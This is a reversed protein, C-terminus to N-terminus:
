DYRAFILRYVAFFFARFLFALGLYILMVVSYIEFSRYTRSQLFNAVFTLEEASIQSVISSALMLLVFQSALAPYVAKLAPFLVVHRFVLFKSLGLAYGAEIQGKQTSDIGARIIETSYAGLNISMALLASEGATMKVGLGPLGFFVIFIQVLLPTNRIAEVYARVARRLPKSSSTGAGAGLIGLLFGFFIAAASLEITFWAGLLLDGFHEFVVGFQFQYGM